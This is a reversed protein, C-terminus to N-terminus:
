TDSLLCGELMQPEMTMHSIVFTLQGGPLAGGLAQSDIQVTEGPHEVIKATVPPLIGGEELLGVVHCVGRQQFHWVKNVRFRFRM